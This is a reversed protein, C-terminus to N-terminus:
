LHWTQVLWAQHGYWQPQWFSSTVTLLLTCMSQAHTVHSSFEASTHQQPYMWSLTKLVSLFVIVCLLDTSLVIPKFAEPPAYCQVNSLLHIPELHLLDLWLWVSTKLLAFSTPTVWPRHPHHEVRWAFRGNANFRCVAWCTILVDQDPNVQEQNTLSVHSNWLRWAHCNHDLFISSDIGYM